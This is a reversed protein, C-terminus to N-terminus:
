LLKVKVNTNLKRREFGNLSRTNIVVVDSRVWGKEGSNLLVEHWTYEDDVFIGERIEKYIEGTKQLSSGAKLVHIVDSSENSVVCKNVSPCNRINATKGKPSVYKATKPATTTTDGGGGGIIKYLLGKKQTTAKDGTGTNKPPVPKSLFYYTLGGVTALGLGLGVQQTTTLKKM